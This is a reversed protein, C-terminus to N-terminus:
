AVPFLFLSELFPCKQKQKRKQGKDVFERSSAQADVKGCLDGHILWLRKCLGDFRKRAGLPPKDPLAVLVPVLLMANQKGLDRRM